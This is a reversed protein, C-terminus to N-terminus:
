KKPDLPLNTHTTAKGNWYWYTFTKKDQLLIHTLVSNQKMSGWCARAANRNNHLDICEQGPIAPKPPIYLACGRPVWLDALRIKNFAPWYRGVSIVLPMNPDTSAFVHPFDHHELDTIVRTILQNNTEQYPSWHGAFVGYITEQQALQPHPCTLRVAQGKEVLTIGFAAAIDRTAWMPEFTVENGLFELQTEVGWPPTQKIGIVEPVVHECGIAVRPDTPAPTLLKAGKPLTKHYTTKGKDNYYFPTKSIDINKVSKQWEFIPADFHNGPM